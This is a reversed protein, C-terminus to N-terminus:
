LNLNFMENEDCCKPVHIDKPACYLIEASKPMDNKTKESYCIEEYDLQHEEVNTPDMTSTVETEEMLYESDNQNSYYDDPYGYDRNDVNQNSYYDYDKNDFHSVETKTDICFENNGIDPFYLKGDFGINFSYTEKNYLKFEKKQCSNEENKGM